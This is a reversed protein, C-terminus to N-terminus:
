QTYFYEQFFLNTTEEVAKTAASLKEMFKQNLVLCM